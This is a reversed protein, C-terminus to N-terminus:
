ARFTSHSCEVETLQIFHELVTLSYPLMCELFAVLVVPSVNHTRGGLQVHLGSYYPIYYDFNCSLCKKKLFPRMKLYCNM